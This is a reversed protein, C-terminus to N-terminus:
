VPAQPLAPPRDGRRVLRLRDQDLRRDEDRNEQDTTRLALGPGRVPRLALAEGFVFALLGWMPVLGIVWGVSQTTIPRAPLFAFLPAHAPGIVGQASLYGSWLASAALAVALGHLVTTAFRTRRATWVYTVSSFSALASGISAGYLTAVAGIVAVAPLSNLLAARLDLLRGSAVLPLTREWPRDLATLLLAALAGAVVLVITRGLTVGDFRRSRVLWSTADIVVAAAVIWAPFAFPTAIVVMNQERVRAGELTTAWRIAWPVFAFLGFRVGTLVLAAVTAGIPIPIRTSSGGLGTVVPLGPVSPLTVRVALSAAVLWPVTLAILLPPYVISPRPRLALIGERDLAQAQLLLLVAAGVGLAAATGLGSIRGPHAAFLYAAGLAALAMGGIIMVHFPAWLTVDLGYLRHWYDDWPFALAACLAGLGALFLGVPARFRGLIQLETTAISEAESLPRLTRGLVGGLAIVGTAAIGGLLLLHPPIFPRDRGIAYHWQIDWAAGFVFALEALVLLIALNTVLSTPSWDPISSVNSRRSHNERM